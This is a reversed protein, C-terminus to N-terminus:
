QAVAGSINGTKLSDLAGSFSPQTKPAPIGTGIWSSDISKNATPTSAGLTPDTTNQTPIAVPKTPDPIVANKKVIDNPDIMPTAM